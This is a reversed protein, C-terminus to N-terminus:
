QVLTIEPGLHQGSFDSPMRKSIKIEKYNGYALDMSGGVLRGAVNTQNWYIILIRNPLAPLQVNERICGAPIEFFTSDGPTYWPLPIANGAAAPQKEYFIKIPLDCNNAIKGIRLANATGFALVATLSALFLKM